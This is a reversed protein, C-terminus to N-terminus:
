TLVIGRIASDAFELRTEGAMRSEEQVIRHLSPMLVLGVADNSDVGVGFDSGTRAEVWFVGDCVAAAAPM